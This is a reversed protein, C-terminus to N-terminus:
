ISYDLLILASLRPRARQALAPPPHSHCPFPFPLGDAPISPARPGGPPPYKYGPARAPLSVSEPHHCCGHATLRGRGRRPPPAPRQRHGHAHPHTRVASQQNSQIPRTPDPRTPDPRTAPGHVDGNQPRFSTPWTLAGLPRPQHRWGGHKDNCTPPAVLWGRSRSRAGGFSELGRAGRDAGAGDRRVWTGVHMSIPPYSSSSSGRAARRPLCANNPAARRWECRGPEATRSGRHAGGRCTSASASCRQRAISQSGVLASNILRRGGRAHRWLQLVYATPRLVHMGHNKDDDVAPDSRSSGVAGGADADAAQLRSICQVSFVYAETMYITAYRTATGDGNRDPQPRSLFRGSFYNGSGFLLPHHQLSEPEATIIGARARVRHDPRQSPPFRRRAPPRCLLASCRASGVHAAGAGCRGPSRVRLRYPGGRWRTVRQAPTPGDM